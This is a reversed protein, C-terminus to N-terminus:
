NRRVSLKRIRKLPVWARLYFGVNRTNPELLWVMRCPYIRLVLWLIVDRWPCFQANVQVKIAKGHRAKWAAFTFFVHTYFYTSCPFIDLSSCTITRRRGKMSVLSTHLRRESRGRMSCNGDRAIEDKRRSTVQDILSCHARRLWLWSYGRRLTYGCVALQGVAAAIGSWMCVM